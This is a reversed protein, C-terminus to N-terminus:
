SKMMSLEESDTGLFDLKSVEEAAAVEENSFWDHVDNQITDFVEEVHVLFASPQASHVLSIGFIYTAAVDYEALQEEIPIANNNLNM